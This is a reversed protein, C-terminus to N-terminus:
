ASYAIAGAGIAVRWTPLLPVRVEFAGGARRVEVEGVDLFGVRDRLNQLGLGTSPSSRSAPKPALRNRVVLVGGEATVTVRLPRARSAVNHKVANEVLTQLALPVVRADHLAPDVSVDVRLRDEHRVRLLHCYDALAELEERVSVTQADRWELLRRYTAALRETFALARAPSEPIVAALTNLSNFLFHPDVQKSLADLQMEVQARLLRERELEARRTREFFYVAEYVGVMALTLIISAPASDTAEIDEKAGLDLFLRLLDEWGYAYRCVAEIALVALILTAVTYVVRLPTESLGPLRRRWVAIVSRSLLWYTLTYLGSVLFYPM